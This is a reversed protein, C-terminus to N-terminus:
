KQVPSMTNITKNIIANNVGRKLLGKVNKGSLSINNSINPNNIINNVAKKNRSSQNSFNQNLLNKAKVTEPNTFKGKVGILESEKLPFSSAKVAAKNQIKNMALNAAGEILDGGQGGTFLNVAGKVFKGAVYDKILKNTQSGLNNGIKVKGLKELYSIIDNYRMTQKNLEQLKIDPIMNETQTKFAQGMIKNAKQSASTPNDRYTEWMRNKLDNVDQSTLYNDGYADQIKNFENNIHSIIEKKTVPDVKQNSVESIVQKQLDPINIANPKVLKGTKADIYPELSGRAKSNSVIDDALKKSQKIQNEFFDISDSTNLGIRGNGLDEPEFLPIGNDLSEKIAFDQINKYSNKGGYLYPNDNLENTVNKLSVASSTKNEIDSLYNTLSKEIDVSTKPANKIFPSSLGGLVGGTLGGVTGQSIVDSINGNNSLANGIGQTAGTIAGTKVLKGTKVLGSLGKTEAGPLVLTGAQLVDGAFQEPTTALRQNDGGLRQTLSDTSQNTDANINYIKGASKLADQYTNYKNTGLLKDLGYAITGSGYTGIDGGVNEGAGVTANVLGGWINSLLGKNEISQQNNPEINNQLDAQQNNHQSQNFQDYYKAVNNVYSKVDYNVGQEANYGAQQTQYADPRGSNWKSAIQAPSLGQEGWKKVTMYAVKDQNTPSFDNPDAGVESAFASFNKPIEGQKLPTPNNWQYAGASHGNDGVKNYDGGSEQHGIAKTLAVISPDLQTSTNDM